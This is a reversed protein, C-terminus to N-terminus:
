PKICEIITMRTSPEEGEWLSKLRSLEESYNIDDSEKFFDLNLPRPAHFYQSIELGAIRMMELWEKDSPHYETNDDHAVKKRRIEKCLIERENEPELGWDEALIFRGGSKLLAAITRVV